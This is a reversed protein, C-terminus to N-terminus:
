IASKTSCCPGATPWSLCGRDIRPRVRSLVKAHGFLESEIVAENFTVPAVPIYAKDARRSHRHIAAAVLEKGTGTEGTILVSLDSDAVLAIQRFVQQM